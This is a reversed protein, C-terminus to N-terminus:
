NQMEDFFEDITITQEKLENLDEANEIKSFLYDAYIRAVELKETKYKVFKKRKKTEKKIEKKLKRKDNEMKELELNSLEKAACYDGHSVCSIISKLFETYKENNVMNKCSKEKKFKLKKSYRRKKKPIVLLSLRIKKSIIM